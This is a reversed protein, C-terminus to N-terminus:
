QRNILVAASYYSDNVTPKYFTTLLSFIPYTRSQSNDTVHLLQQMFNETYGLIGYTTAKRVSGPRFDGSPFIGCSTM